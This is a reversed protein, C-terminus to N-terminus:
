NWLNSRTICRGCHFYAREVTVILALEPIRGNLALSERIASDRVIAGKGSVRLTEAKGPVFFILGVSPNALINCFTDVRRNGRRDPIALTVDDLVQVFGPPDGKPSVDLQGSAGSSAIVVLPTKAIFQRCHRDLKSLMKSTMLRNPRGVISRLENETTIVERFRPAITPADLLLDM